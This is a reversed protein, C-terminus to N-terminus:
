FGLLQKQINNRKKYISNPLNKTIDMSPKLWWSGFTAVVAWRIKKAINEFTGHWLRSDWIILDGANGIILQVKNSRRNSFNGTMHSGPVVKTCGNQINADELLIVFQMM